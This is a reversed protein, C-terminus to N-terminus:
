PSAFARLRTRQEAPILLGHGRRTLITVGHPALKRRLKYVFVNLIRECPPDPLDGYLALMIADRTALERAVLVGLLAAERPSLM